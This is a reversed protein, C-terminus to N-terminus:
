PRFGPVFRGLVLHEESPAVFRSVKLPSWAFGVVEDRADAYIRFVGRGLGEHDRSPSAYRHLWPREGLQRHRDGGM